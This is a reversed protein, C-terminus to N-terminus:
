PKKKPTTKKPQKDFGTEVKSGISDLMAKAPDAFPGDPKLALYKEFAEKTGAPPTIKGDPTTTAKGILYIGYQYQADAYNPDLEIAKKFAEGAPDSQGTNVLVAGLNYYYKGANPPDIQAAKTLEAQAEAFKKAKALALAYNNHYSADDPKLEIAKQFAALGKDTLDQAAAKDDPGIKTAALGFYADAMNGFIVHQTADMEAAKKFQDIALEWNKVKYDRIAAPDTIGPPGETALKKAEQGANFADNLAKNKAMSAQREKTQKELEAKQAPTMDRAAEKTIVGTEMAKQVEQARAKQERLDFNVPVPDGLTTKVRDRFDVDKGDIEVTVKYLGLPLGAHFYHGKKDTKVKYSGKIDTRDIKVLAGKVPNGDGDKVDGELSSTQALSLTAFLGLCILLLFGHRLSAVLPHHTRM